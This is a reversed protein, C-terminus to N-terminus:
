RYKQILDQFERESFAFPSYLWASNDALVDAIAVSNKCVAEVEGTNYTILFFSGRVGQNHVSYHSMPLSMLDELFSDRSEPPITCILEASGLDRPNSITGEPSKMISVTIISEPDGAMAYPMQYFFAGYIVCAFIVSVIILIRRRKIKIWLLLLKWRIQQRYYYMKSSM